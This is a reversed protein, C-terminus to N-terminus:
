VGKDVKEEHIQVPDVFKQGGEAARMRVLWQTPSVLLVAAAVLQGGIDLGQDALVARPEVGYILANGHEKGLLLCGAARLRLATGGAKRGQPDRRDAMEHRANM